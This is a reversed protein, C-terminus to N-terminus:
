MWMQGRIVGHRGGLAELTVIHIYFYYVLLDLYYNTIDLKFFFFTSFEKQLLSNRVHFTEPKHSSQQHRCMIIADIGILHISNVFM